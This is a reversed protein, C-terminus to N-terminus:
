CLCQKETENRRRSCVRNAPSSLFLRQRDFLANSRVTGDQGHATATTTHLQRHHHHRATRAAGGTLELTLRVFM